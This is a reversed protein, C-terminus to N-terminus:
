EIEKSLETGGLKEQGCQVCALYNSVFTFPSTKMTKLSRRAVSPDRHQLLSKSGLIEKHQIRGKFTAAKESTFIIM